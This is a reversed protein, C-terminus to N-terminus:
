APLEGLHRCFEGVFNRVVELDADEPIDGMSHFAISQGACVELYRQAMAFAKTPENFPLAISLSGVEHSLATITSLGPMQGEQDPGLFVIGTRLKAVESLLGGSYGSLYLAIPVNYYNAMNRLTSYVKRLATSIGASALITNERLLLLSPRRSCFAEVRDASLQRAGALSEEDVRGSLSAAVAAPGAIVAICGLWSDEFQKLRDFAELANREVGGGVDGASCDAHSFGISAADVGLLRATRAVNNCWLQPDAVLAEYGSQNVRGALKECFAILPPPGAKGQLFTDFAARTM